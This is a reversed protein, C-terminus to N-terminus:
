WGRLRMSNLVDSASPKQPQTTAVVAAQQQQQNNSFAPIPVPLSIQSKREAATNGSLQAQQQYMSQATDYRAYGHSAQNGYGASTTPYGVNTTNVSTASYSGVNASNSTQDGYARSYNSQNGYAGSYGAVSTPPNIVNSADSKHGTFYGYNPSTRQDANDVTQHGPIPKGFMPSTDQYDEQNSKASSSSISPPPPANLTKSSMGTGKLEWLNIGLTQTIIQRFKLDKVDHVKLSHGMKFCITCVKTRCKTHNYPNGSGTCRPCKRVSDPPPLKKAAIFDEPELKRKKVSTPLPLQKAAIVDEPQIKRKM